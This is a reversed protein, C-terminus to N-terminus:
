RLASATQLPVYGSPAVRCVDDSTQHWATGDAYSVARLDIWKVATLKKLVVQAKSTTTLTFEETGDQRSSASSVAEYHMGTPGVLTLVVHRIPKDGRSDFTIQYVPREQPTSAARRIVGHQERMAEIGIPCSSSSFGELVAPAVSQPGNTQGVGATSIILVSLTLLGHGRM